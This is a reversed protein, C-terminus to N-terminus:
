QTVGIASKITYRFKGRPDVMRHWKMIYHMEADYDMWYWGFWIYNKIWEMKDEFFKKFDIKVM